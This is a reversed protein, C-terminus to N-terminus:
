GPRGDKRPTLYVAANRLLWPLMGVALLLAASTLLPLGEGEFAIAIRAIATVQVTGFALWALPFMALPRGSHGQSVRTVMAILLSGAFGIMLAHVPALGVPLGAGALASLAFGVPAWAFGWILVSLIGPAPARPWWKWAMLGTLAALGAAGLAALAPQDLLTGGLDVLLGTWLAVLLWDPRWRQYGAVVNAAFFPVMRHAVTLFVPLLFGGVAIQHSWRWALGDGTAVFLTALLLACLGLLLAAWASFAHWCPPAGARRHRMLVSGLAILAVLWGLALLVFGGALLAQLGSWLGVQGVIVGAMILIAPPGFQARGLDAQGMWRPFVTLLFGFVFPAYALFLLAPAHLLLAPVPGEPMPPIVGALGALNAVWWLAGAAFGLSGALFPLRHPAALLPPLSAM